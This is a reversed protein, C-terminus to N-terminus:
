DYEVEEGRLGGTVAMFSASMTLVYKVVFSEKQRASISATQQQVGEMGNSITVNVLSDPSPDLM